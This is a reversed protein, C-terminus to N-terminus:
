FDLPKYVPTPNIEETTMTINNKINKAILSYVKTDVACPDFIISLSTDRASSTIHVIACSLRMLLVTTIAVVLQQM